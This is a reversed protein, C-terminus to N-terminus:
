IMELFVDADSFSISYEVIGYINDLVTMICNQEYPTIAHSITFVKNYIEQRNYKKYENWFEDECYLIFAYFDVGSYFLQNERIDRWQKTTFYKEIVDKLKKREITNKGYDCIEDIVKDAIMDPFSKLAEILKFM